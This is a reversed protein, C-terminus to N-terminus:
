LFNKNRDWKYESQHKPRVWKAWNQGQGLKKIKRSSELKDLKNKIYM